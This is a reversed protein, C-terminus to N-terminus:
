KTRFYGKRDQRRCIQEILAQAQAESALTNHRCGGLNNDLNGWTRTVIWDGFLDQSLRVAFYHQQRHWRIIM